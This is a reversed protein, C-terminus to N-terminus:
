VQRQAGIAKTEWFAVLAFCVLSLTHTAWVQDARKREQELAATQEASPAAKSEPLWLMWLCCSRIITRNM